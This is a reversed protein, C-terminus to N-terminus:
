ASGDCLCDVDESQCGAGNGAAQTGWKQGM